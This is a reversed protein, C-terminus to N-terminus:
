REGELFQLRAVIRQVTEHAQALRKNLQRNEREMTDARQALAIPDLTGSSVGQLAEELERIRREAAAARSRLAEHESLLRELSRELRRLEPPVGDARSEPAGSSM